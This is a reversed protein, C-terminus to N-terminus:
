PIMYNDWVVEGGRLKIHDAGSSCLNFLVCSEDTDFDKDVIISIRQGWDLLKKYDM